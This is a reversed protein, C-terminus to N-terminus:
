DLNLDEEELGCATLFDEFSLYPAAPDIDRNFLQFLIQDMAAEGGVLEEAKLIKLPMENYQRVSSLSNTIVLQEEEPLTKLYNPYRVYFNLYYDDVVSQWQDVYHEQAYSAGYLEKVIRYTTYTTLGESSWPDAPDESYFMNGLGWWQHVLEHIMVEGPITGKEGNNLNKATFDLEDLTSAGGTAYGGGIVRSQVLKLTGNSEAFSLSGYHETCYEIVARVANAAQAAEMIEQHKRGYYFEVSIGAVSIEEKIYDGAYLIGGSGTDEYRWTATGDDHTEIVRASEPGFPIAIM